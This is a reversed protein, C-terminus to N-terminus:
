EAVTPGGGLIVRVRGAAAGRTEAFVGILFAGSATANIVEKATDDWWARNGAVTADSANVVLLHEGERLGTFDEGDAADDEAVVFTGDGVIYGVGGTVGGGSDETACDDTNFVPKEGSNVYFKTM